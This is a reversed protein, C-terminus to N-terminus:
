ARFEKLAGILDDESEVLCDLSGFIMLNIPDQKFAARSDTKLGILYKDTKNLYKDAYALGLEVCAGEDPVRGDLIILLIDAEFVKDRDFKFIMRQMESRETDEPFEHFELGDRQPLYVSFGEKELKGTLKQNFALEAQNFLPASFYILLTGGKFDPDYNPIYSLL